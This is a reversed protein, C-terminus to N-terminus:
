CPWQFFHGYVYRSTRSFPQNEMIINTQWFTIHYIMILLLYIYISTVITADYSSSWHLTFKSTVIPAIIYWSLLSYDHHRNIFPSWTLLASSLWLPPSVIYRISLIYSYSYAFWCCYSYCIIIATSLLTYQLLTMPTFSVIYLTPCQLLLFM